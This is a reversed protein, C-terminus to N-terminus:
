IIIYQRWSISTLTWVTCVNHGLLLTTGKCSAHYIRVFSMMGDCVVRSTPSMHSVSVFQPLRMIAFYELYYASRRRVCLTYCLGQGRRARRIDSKSPHPTATHTPLPRTLGTYPQNKYGEVYISYTRPFTEVATCVASFGENSRSKKNYYFPVGRHLLVTYIYPVEIKQGGNQCKQGISRGTRPRHALESLPRQYM